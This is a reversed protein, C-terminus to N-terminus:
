GLKRICMQWGKHILEYRLTPISLFTDIAFKPRLNGISLEYDDFVLFGGQKLIPWSQLADILIANMGHSGDVYIFDYSNRALLPLVNLSMGRFKTVKYAFGTSSVNFDFHEEQKPYVNFPDICKISSTEHTLINELLWCTCNGEFCGIELFNLQPTDRLHGFNKKWQDIHFYFWDQSLKYKPHKLLEFPLHDLIFHQVYIETDSDFAGGTVMYKLRDHLQQKATAFSPASIVGDGFKRQLVTLEKEIMKLIGEMTSRQIVNGESAHRGLQMFCEMLDDSLVMTLERIKSVSTESDSSGHSIM